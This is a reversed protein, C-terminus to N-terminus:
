APRQASKKLSRAIKDPDKWTFVGRDLDLANRQRTVRAFWKKSSKRAPM